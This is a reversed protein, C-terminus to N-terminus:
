VHYRCGRVQDEISTSSWLAPEVFVCERTGYGHIRACFALCLSYEEFVRYTGHHSEREQIAVGERGGFPNESPNFLRQTIASFENEELILKSGRHVEVIGGSSEYRCALALERSHPV